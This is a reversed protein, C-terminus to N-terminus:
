NGSLEEVAVCVRRAGIRRLERDCMTLTAGTTKVDDVLWVTWGRLDIHKAQFPDQVNEFRKRTSISTQPHTYRRRRLLHATPWKNKAAFAAAMLQSQNFGRRTRRLVHMPVPCVITHDPPDRTDLQEALKRGFWPSWARDSAFKMAVIWGAVPEDYASLRIIRQWAIPEGTCRSCQNNGWAGPAVTTGCRRCYQNPQDIQWEQRHAHESRDDCSRPLVTSLTTNLQRWCQIIKDTMSVIIDAMLNNGAFPDVKGLRQRISAVTM